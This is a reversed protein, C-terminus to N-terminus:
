KPRVNPDNMPVGTAPDIMPRPKQGPMPPPNGGMMGLAGGLGGVGVMGARPPVIGPGGMLGLQGGGINGFAGLLNLNPQGIIGIGPAGPFGYLGYPQVPFTAPTALGPADKRLQTVKQTSTVLLVNDLRIAHMGASTAMVTVAVELPTDHLKVTVPTESEKKMQPDVVINVGTDRALQELAKSLPTADLAVNVKQRVQLSVARDAYTIFVRDGVIVHTMSYPALARNLSEGLKVSGRLKIVVLDAVGGTAPVGPIPSPFLGADAVFPVSTQATLQEVAKTVCVADIELEKTADLAKRLKDATTEKPPDAATARLTLSLLLLTAIRYM